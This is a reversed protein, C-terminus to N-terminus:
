AAIQVIDTVLAILAAVGWAMLAARGLWTVPRSQWIRVLPVKSELAYGAALAVILLLGLPGTLLLGPLPILVALWGKSRRESRELAREMVVSLATAGLGPLAVFMVVALAVPHLLSFDIGDAHVIVSGGVLAGLAGFWWARHRTPLWVRVLGYFLSAVMGAVGAFLILFFTDGSLQGITFGDDSELGVVSDGTTARMVFMALRSGIGGILLGAVLGGWVCAGLYRAIQRIRERWPASSVPDQVTVPAVRM